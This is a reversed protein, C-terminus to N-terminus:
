VQRSSATDLERIYSPDTSCCGGVIDAGCELVIQSWSEKCDGNPYAILRVNNKKEENADVIRKISAILNITQVASACNVGVAVLNHGSEKLLDCVAETISTGNALTKEDRCQFSLWYPFNALADDRSMAAAVALAEQESPITEFALIDPIATPEDSSILLQASSCHSNEFMEQTVQQYSGRYESEGEMWSAMPGISAAIKPFRRNSKREASLGNWFENRAHTLLKTASQLTKIAENEDMQFESQFLFRNAQYTATTIIDAGSDLYEQSLEVLNNPSSLLLSAAWLKSSDFQVGRENLVDGVSGDLIVPKKGNNIWDRWRTVRIM